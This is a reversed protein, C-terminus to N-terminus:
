KFFESLPVDWSDPLLTLPSVQMAKAIRELTMLQVNGVPSQEINLLRGSTLGTRAALQSPTLGLLRRQASIKEGTTM